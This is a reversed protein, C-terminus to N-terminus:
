PKKDAGQGSKQRRKWERNQKNARQRPTMLAIERAESGGPSPLMPVLGSAITNVARRVERSEEPMLSRYIDDAMKPDSWGFGAQRAKQSVGLAAQLSNSTRRMAHFHFPAKGNEDLLGAEGLVTKLYNRYMGGYITKGPKLPKFALGESPRGRMEFIDNLAALTPGSLWLGRDGAGTKTPKMIRDVECWSDDVDALGMEWDINEWRLVAVESRRPGNTIFLLWIARRYLYAEHTTEPNRPGYLVQFVKQLQDPTAVKKGKQVPPLRLDPLLALLQPPILWGRKKGFTLATKLTTGAKRGASALGKKEWVTDVCAQCDEFTLAALVIQGIGTALLLGMAYEYGAKTKGGLSWKERWGGQAVTKHHRQSVDLMFAALLDGTTRTENRGFETLNYLGNRVTQAHAEAHGKLKFTARGDRDKFVIEKGTKPCPGLVQYAVREVIKGTKRDRGKWKKTKVRVNKV